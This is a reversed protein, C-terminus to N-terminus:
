DLVPRPGCRARIRLLPVGTILLCPLNVLWINFWAGLWASMGSDLVFWVCLAGTLARWAWQEGRSLAHRVIMHFLVFFGASTAGLLVAALMSDYWGWPDLSGIVVWSAIQVAFVISAISLLRIM